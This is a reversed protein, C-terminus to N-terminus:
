TEALKDVAARSTQELAIMLGALSTALVEENDDLM